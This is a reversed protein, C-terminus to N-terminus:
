KQFSTIDSVHPNLHSYMYLIPMKLSLKHTFLMMVNHNSILTPQGNQKQSYIGGVLLLEMGTLQRDLTPTFFVRFM